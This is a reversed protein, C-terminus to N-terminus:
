ITESLDDSNKLFEEKEDEKDEAKLNIEDIKADIWDAFEGEIRNFVERKTLFGLHKGDKDQIEIEKGKAHDQHFEYYRGTDTDMIRFAIISHDWEFAKIKDFSLSLAVQDDEELHVRDAAMSKVRRQENGSLRRVELYCGPDEPLEFRRTSDILSIGFRM